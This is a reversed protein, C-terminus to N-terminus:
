RPMTPAFGGDVNIVLGTSKRLDPGVLVYVAAAIDEPLIEKKLLTRQAYFKGLDKEEIGY